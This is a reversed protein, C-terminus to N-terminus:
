LRKVLATPDCAGCQAGIIYEIPLNVLDQRFTQLEENAVYSGRTLALCFSSIDEINELGLDTLYTLRFLTLAIDREKRQDLTLIADVKKMFHTYRPKAYLDFGIETLIHQQAMHLETQTIPLRLLLDKEYMPCYSLLFSSIGLSAVGYTMESKDTDIISVPVNPCSLFRELINITLCRIHDSREHHYQQTQLWNYFKARRKQPLIQKIRDSDIVQSRKPINEYLSLTLQPVDTLDRIEDFFPDLMITPLNPRKDPCLTLMQKLLSAPMMDDLLIDLSAYIQPSLHETSEKWRPLSTVGTWTEETPIGLRDWYMQICTSESTGPFLPAKKIMDFLICGLAWIDSSERYIDGLSLEPSRYWLTMVDCHGIDTYIERPRCLGFDCLVAYFRLDKNGTPYLLVNESKLDGHLWGCSHMYSVAKVLSFFIYKIEEMSLSGKRKRIFANLDCEALPTIIRTTRNTPCIEDFIIDVLPVINPHHLRSLSVAELLFSCDCVEDTPSSNKLAITKKSGDSTVLDCKHVNGYTGSMLPDGLELSFSRQTIIGHYQKSIVPANAM